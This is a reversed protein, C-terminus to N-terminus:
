TFPEVIKLLIVSLMVVTMINISFMIVSIMTIRSGFGLIIFCEFHKKM